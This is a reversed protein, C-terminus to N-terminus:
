KKSLINLGHITMGSSISLFFHYLPFMLLLINLIKLLDATVALGHFLVNLKGANPSYQLVYQRHCYTEKSRENKGGDYGKKDSCYATKISQSDILGYSPEARNREATFITYQPIRRIM